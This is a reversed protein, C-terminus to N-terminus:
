NALSGVWLVVVTSETFNGALQLIGDSRGPLRVDVWRRPELIMYLKKLTSHGVLNAAEPLPWELPVIAVVFIAIFHSRCNAMCIDVLSALCCVTNRIM